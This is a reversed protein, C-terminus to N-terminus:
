SKAVADLTSLRVFLYGGTAGAAAQTVLGGTSRAAAVLTIDFTMNLGFHVALVAVAGAIIYLPIRAQPFWRTILATVLFAILFGIAFLPLLTAGMGLLDHGTVAIRQGFSIPLGLVTISALAFQTAMIAAFVYAAVVAALFSLSRKIM